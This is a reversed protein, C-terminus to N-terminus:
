RHHPAGLLVGDVHSPAPPAPPPPGHPPQGLDTFALLCAITLVFLAVFVAIALKTRTTRQASRNRAIITELRGM